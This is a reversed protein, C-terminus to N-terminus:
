ANRYGYLVVKGTVSPGGATTLQFGDIATTVSNRGGVFALAASTASLGSIGTASYATYDTAQPSFFDLQYSTPYTPYAAPSLGFQDSRDSGTMTTSGTAAGYYLSYINNTQVTSGVLFRLYVSAASSASIRVLARYNVYTSSFASQFDVTQVTAFNTTSIYVLGGNNLYTNTDSATLVEGTTFTKVAM